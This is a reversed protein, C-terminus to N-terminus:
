YNAIANGMKSWYRLPLRSNVRIRVVSFNDIDPYHSRMVWIFLIPTFM